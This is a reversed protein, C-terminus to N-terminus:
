QSEIKWHILDFLEGALHIADKIQQGSLEVISDPYRIQVAYRSIEDVKLYYTGFSKDKTVILDLLYGLDHVPKFEIDLYILYAKISKEISQQCHFAIMDFYDPLQASIVSATDLDHRAKILWEKILDPDKM